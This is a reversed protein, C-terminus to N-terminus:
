KRNEITIDVQWLTDGYKVSLDMAEYSTKVHETTEENGGHKSKPWSFGFGFLACAPLLKLPQILPQNSKKFLWFPIL